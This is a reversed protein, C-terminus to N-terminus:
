HKYHPNKPKSKRKYKQEWSQQSKFMRDRSLDKKRSFIGGKAYEKPFSLEGDLIMDIVKIAFNLAPLDKGVNMSVIENRYRVIKKYSDDKEVEIQGVVLEDDILMDIVRIAFNLAPLDKGVNMSVLENRYRFIDTEGGKAMMGGDAFTNTLYVEMFMKGGKKIIKSDIYKLGTEKQAKEIAKKDEGKKLQAEDFTGVKVKGGDAMMMGGNAMVKHEIQFPLGYQEQLFALFGTVYEKGVDGRDKFGFGGIYGDGNEGELLFHFYTNEDGQTIEYNISHSPKYQPFYLKQKIDSDTLGHLKVSDYDIDLRTGKKIPFLEFGFSYPFKANLLEKMETITFGESGVTGGDAFKPIKSDIEKGFSDGILYGGVAALIFPLM